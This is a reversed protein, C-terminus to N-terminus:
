AESASETELDLKTQREDTDMPRQTYTEGTDLRKWYVMGAEWDKLIEVEVFRHEYGSRIRESILNLEADLVDMRGKMASKFAVTEDELTKTDHLLQAQRKGYALTEEDTLTCKLNDQGKETTPKLKKKAM